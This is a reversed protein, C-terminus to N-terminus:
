LNAKILHLLKDQRMLLKGAIGFIGHNRVFVVPARLVCVVLVCLGACLQWLWCGCGQCITAFAIGDAGIGLATAPAGMATTAAGLSNGGNNDGDVATATVTRM